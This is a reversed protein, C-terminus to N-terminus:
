GSTRTEASVSLIDAQRERLVRNRPLIPNECHLAIDETRLWLGYGGLSFGEPSSDWRPNEIGLPEFLRPKLYELTTQRTVKSVIASLVYSGM